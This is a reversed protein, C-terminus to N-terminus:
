ESRIDSLRFQSTQFKFRERGYGTLRLFQDFMWALESQSDSATSGDTAENLATLWVTEVEVQMFYRSKSDLGSEDRLIVVVSDALFRHVAAMSKLVYTTEGSEMTTSSVEFTKTTLSYSLIHSANSSIELSSGWLRRPRRLEIRIDCRLAVGDELRNAREATLLMSLDVQVRLSDGEYVPTVSPENSQQAGVAVALGIVALITSITRRPMM